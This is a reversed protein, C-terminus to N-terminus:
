VGHRWIERNYQAAWEDESFFNGDAFYESGETSDKELLVSVARAPAGTTDFERDWEKSKAVMAGMGIPLRIQGGRANATIDISWTKRNMAIEM